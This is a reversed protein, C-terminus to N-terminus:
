WENDIMKWGQSELSKCIYKGITTNNTWCGQYWPGNKTYSLLGAGEPDQTYGGVDLAYLLNGGGDKHYYTIGCGGYSCGGQIDVKIGTTDMPITSKGEPVGHELVYLEMQKEAANIALLAETLRAKAVAKNYQPLAVAALIGIILVVVLLEILTFGRSVRETVGVRRAAIFAPYLTHIAGIDRMLVSRSSSPCFQPFSEKKYEGSKNLFWGKSCKLKM